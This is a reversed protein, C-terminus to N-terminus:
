GHNVYITETRTYFEMAAQGQEKFTNGSSGKFRGLPADLALGTTPENIKVMVLHAILQTPAMMHEEDKKNMM